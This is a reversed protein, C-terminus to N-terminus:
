WFKADGAVSAEALSASASDLAKSPRLRATSRSTTTNWGPRAMTSCAAVTAIAAGMMGYTPILLRNLLVTVVASAVLLLWPVTGTFFFDFANGTSGGAIGGIASIKIWNFFGFLFMGAGGGVILWDHTKFKSFDM